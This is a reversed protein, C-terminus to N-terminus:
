GKGELREIMSERAHCRKCLAQLNGLDYASGRYEKRPIIHHVEAAATLKGQQQCKECLPTANLKANRTRKWAKSGYFAWDKRRQQTIGITRVTKKRHKDCRGSAVLESCGPVSCPRPPASPM